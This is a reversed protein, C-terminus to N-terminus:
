WLSGSSRQGKKVSVEEEIFLVWKQIEDITYIFEENNAM